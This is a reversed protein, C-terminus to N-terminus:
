SLPRRSFIHVSLLYSLLFFFLSVLVIGMGLLPLQGAQQIKNLPSVLRQVDLSSGTLAQWVMGLVVPAAIVLLYFYRMRQSGFRYCLPICVGSLYLSVVSAALISSVLEGLAPAGTFLHFGLGILLSLTIGFLVMVLISLYKAAVLAARSVPLTLSFANWHYFEDYSFSNISMVSILTCLVPAIAAYNGMAGWLVTFFLSVLLISRISDKLIYLDKLVLGKM